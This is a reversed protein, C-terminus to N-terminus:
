GFRNPGHKIPSGHPVKTKYTHDAPLDGLTDYKQALGGEIKEIESLFSNNITSSKLWYFEYLSGTFSRNYGGGNERISLNIQSMAGSAELTVNEITGNLGVDTGNVRAFATGIGNTTGVVITYYSNTSLVSSSNITNLSGTGKSRIKLTSNDDISVQFSGQANGQGFSLICQEGSTASDTKVFFVVAFNNANVAINLNDGVAAYNTILSLNTSGNVNNFFRKTSDAELILETGAEATFEFNNDSFDGWSSAKATGDVPRQITESILAIKCDAIVCQTPSFVGGRQFSWERDWPQPIIWNVTSAELTGERLSLIYEESGRGLILNQNQKLSCKKENENIIGQNEANIPGDITLTMIGVDGFSSHPKRGSTPM